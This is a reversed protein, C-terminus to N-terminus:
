LFCTNTRIFQKTAVIRSINRKSHQILRSNANKTAAKKRERIKGIRKKQLEPVIRFWDQSVDDKTIM